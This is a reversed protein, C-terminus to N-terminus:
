CQGAMYRSGINVFRKLKWLKAASTKSDPQISATRKQTAHTARPIPLPKKRKYGAMNPYDHDAEGMYPNYKGCIIAEINECEGSLEGFPGSHPAKGLREKKTAIVRTFRIEPHDKTFKKLMKPNTCGSKAAQINTRIFSRGGDIVNPAPPAMVWKSIVDGANEEDAPVSKGYIHGDQPLTYVSTRGFGVRDKIMTRKKTVYKPVDYPIVKPM